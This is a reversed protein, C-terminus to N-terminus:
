YALVYIGSKTGNFYNKIRKKSLFNKLLFGDLIGVGLGLIGNLSGKKAKLKITETRCFNQQHSVAFRLPDLVDMFTSLLLLPTSFSDM